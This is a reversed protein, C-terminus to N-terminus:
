VGNRLWRRSEAVPFLLFFLSQHKGHFLLNLYPPCDREGIFRGIEADSSHHITRHSDSRIDHSETRTSRSIYSRIDQEAPAYQLALDWLTDGEQIVVSEYVQVQESQAYAPHPMLLAALISLSLVIGAIMYFVAYRNHNSRSLTIMSM